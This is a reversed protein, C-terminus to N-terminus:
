SSARKHHYAHTDALHSFPTHSVTYRHCHHSLDLDVLIYPSGAKVYAPFVLVGPLGSLRHITSKGCCMIVM